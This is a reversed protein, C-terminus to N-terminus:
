QQRWTCRHAPCDHHFEMTEPICVSCVQLNPINDSNVEIHIAVKTGDRFWFAVQDETGACFMEIEKGVFYKANIEEDRIEPQQFKEM